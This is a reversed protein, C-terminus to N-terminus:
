YTEQGRIWTITTTGSSTPVLRCLANAPVDWVIFGSQTTSSNLVVALTVQNSNEVEGADIWTSGGNTSYQFLVKGSSASGITATCTIKINYRVSAVKTTSITYTSSNITRTVVNGTPTYQTLTFNPYTGSVGFNNAGTLVVTQDPASNTIVGTGSVYSIGTGASISARARTNTYYLNTGETLDTTTKGSFATNFRATTYYLNTGEVLDTTTKSAFKTNFLPDTESFSTLYGADNTWQSVNGSKNTLINTSSPTIYGALSHNGWTFATQGNNVRSDNGETVTGSTTGFNKNFATNKSFIPEYLPDTMAKIIAFSVLTKAFPPVTPDAEIFSNIYGDPNAEDYPVYGLAAIVLQATILIDIKFWRGSLGGGVTPHVVEDDDGIATSTDDWRYFSFAETTPYDLGLVSAITTSTANGRRIKLEALNELLIISFAM